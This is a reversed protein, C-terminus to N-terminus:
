CLVPNLRTRGGGPRVASELERQGGGIQTDGAQGPGKGCPEQQHQSTGPSRGWCRLGVLDGDFWTELKGLDRRLAAKGELEGSSFCAGPKASVYM